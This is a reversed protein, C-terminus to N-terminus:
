VVSKRDSNSGPSETVWYTLGLGLKFKGDGVMRRVTGGGYMNEEFYSLKIEGEWRPLLEDAFGFEFSKSGPTGGVAVLPCAYMSAGTEYTYRGCIRDLGSNENTIGANSDHQEEIGWAADASECFALMLALIIVFALVAYDTKNDFLKKSM